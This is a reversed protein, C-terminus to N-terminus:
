CSENISQIAAQACAFGFTGTMMCSTGMGTSCDLAKAAKHSESDNKPIDKKFCTGGQDDPYIARETNSVALIGFKNRGKEFGFDRRLKKRMRKLLMDQCADGLDAIQVKSIDFKGAAGGSTVVPIKREYCQSILLCKNTLGDIADVVVDPKLNFLSDVSDASFFDELINIKIDPNILKLRQAMMQVKSLGVSDSLAHLQRNTNTICIEDLDMLTIEGIGSRCLAEACWTGVGGIGIVAVHSSSIKELQKTGYLRGIAGYRQQYENNM